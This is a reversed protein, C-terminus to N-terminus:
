HRSRWDGIAPQIDDLEPLVIVQAPPRRRLVRCTGGAWLEVHAPLKERLETLSQLVLNPNVSSSFSLAVVDTDHAGAALVIDMVPTQVGLSVCRCGELSIIAEAMLLGLGHPEQPVTTLLVRPRGSPFPITSIANRLVVQMSETYLHEEFVEVQGRAWADGVMRTLPAVVKIVFRAMGIRLQADSLMRRLEQVQHAKLLDVYRQLSAQDADLDAARPGATSAADLAMERLQLIPLGIIKGPRHGADMLRRLVRLKEVQEVPYAREGFADRGPSPFGYRREWVRLTDKSLGTDREVASISRPSGSSKANDNMKDLVIM